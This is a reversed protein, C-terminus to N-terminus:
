AFRKEVAMDVTSGSISIKVNDSVKQLVSQEYKDWETSEITHNALDSMAEDPIYSYDPESCMAEEFANRLKGLFTKAAENKQSTASSLLQERKERDLVTQTTMHLSFQRGTSEVWFSASMEGTVSRALCLMEEACLRLHPTDKPSLSRFAASLTAQAIAEEFGNGSNDIKIVDSKM